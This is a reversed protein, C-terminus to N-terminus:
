RGKVTTPFWRGALIHIKGKGKPPIYAVFENREVREISAKVESPNGFGKHLDGWGSTDWTMPAGGGGNRYAHVYDVGFWVLAGGSKTRVAYVPTKADVARSSGAWGNDVFAKRNDILTQRGSDVLKGLFRGHYPSKDRFSLAHAFAAAVKGPVVDLRADDLPVVAPFDEVEVGPAIPGKATQSFPAYVVRWPQGSREQVVLLFDRTAPSSGTDTAAAFFWKPHESFKPASALGDTYKVKPYRLRNAKYVRYQASHVQLASGAEVKSALEPDLRGNARGIATLYLKLVADVGKPNLAPSPQATPTGAVASPTTKKIANVNGTSGGGDSGSCGATLLTVAAVLAVPRLHRM